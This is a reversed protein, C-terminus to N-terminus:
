IPYEAQVKISSLSRPVDDPTDDISRCVSSMERSDVVWMRLYVKLCWVAAEASEHEHETKRYTALLQWVYAFTRWLPVGFFTGAM